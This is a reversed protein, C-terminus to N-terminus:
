VDNLLDVTASLRLNCNLYVSLLQSAPNWTVQVRHYNGDEINQAGPLAEVPAAVTNAAITHDKIGDRMFAIHDFNPDGGSGDWFTDFEIALSPIIGNAVPDAPANVAYGLSSGVAGIANLGQGQLVFALGDAGGDSNGFKVDLRLDFPVSLDLADQCWASGAQYSSSSTLRYCDGGLISANGNITFSQAQGHVCLSLLFWFTCRSM